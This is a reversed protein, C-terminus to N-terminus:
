PGGTQRGLELFCEGPGRQPEDLRGTPRELDLHVAAGDKGLKPQVSM